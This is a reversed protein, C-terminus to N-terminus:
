CKLFEKNLLMQFVVSILYILEVIFLFYVSICNECMSEIEAKTPLPTIEMNWILSQSLQYFYVCM